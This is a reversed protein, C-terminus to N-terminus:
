DISFNLSEPRKLWNSLSQANKDKDSCIPADIGWDINLDPDNWLISSEGDPNWYATCKYIVHTNDELAIFGNAFGPPIWLIHKNRESLDLAAYKGLTKSNHRIDVEFFKASGNTVRILKGMPPGWQFHMGRIVNRHSVSHNEQVFDFNIDYHRLDSLKFSEFFLGRSDAFVEPSFVMLSDFERSILKLGM